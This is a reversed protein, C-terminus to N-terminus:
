GQRKPFHLIFKTHPTSRDLRIHGHHREIIDAAISLGLGIGHGMEKTTFFPNMINQAVEEPIGSGSDTIHIEVSAGLDFAEISMWKEALSFVADYANNFINLMAEEIQTLRCEFELNAPINGLRVAINQHHFRSKCFDLTQQILDRVNVSDVPVSEPYQAFSRLSRVLKAIKDATQAISDISSKAKAPDFDGQEVMQMLQFSRAHIITLPNNIEHAIGASVEALIAMRSASLLQQRQEITM